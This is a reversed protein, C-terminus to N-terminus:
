CVNENNKGPIVRGFCHFVLSLHSRLVNLKSPIESESFTDIGQWVVLTGSEQKMFQGFLPVHEYEHIDANNTAM